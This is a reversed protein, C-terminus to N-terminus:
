SNDKESFSSESCLSYLIVSKQISWGELEYGERQASRVTVEPEGWVAYLTVTDGRVSTLDPIHGGDEFEPVSSSRDRSWGLFPVEYEYDEPGSGTEGEIVTDNQVHYTVTRINRFSGAPLRFGDDGFPVQINEMAGETGEGCNGDFRVTYSEQAWVARFSIDRDTYLVDGPQYLTDTDGDGSAWGLFAYGDRVPADPFATSEAEIIRFNRSDNLVPILSIEVSDTGPAEGTGNESLFTIVPAARYVGYFRVREDDTLDLSVESCGSPTQIDYFFATDEKGSPEDDFMEAREYVAADESKVFASCFYAGRSLGPMRVRSKEGDTLSVSRAYDSFLDTFDYYVSNNYIYREDSEARVAQGAENFVDASAKMEKRFVAYLTIDGEPIYSETICQTSDPLLSWGIHEWGQKEARPTIDAASGADVVDASESCSDGGNSMYDYTIRYQTKEWIGYLVMYRSGLEVTEGPAYQPSGAGFRYRIVLREGTYVTEDGSVVAAAPYATFDYGTVRIESDSMETDVESTIDTLTDWSDDGDYKQSYVSLDGSVTYYGPNLKDLVVTSSDFMCGGTTETGSYSVTLADLISEKASESLGGTQTYGCHWPADTDYTFSGTHM